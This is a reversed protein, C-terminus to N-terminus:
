EEHIGVSGFRKISLKSATYSILISSLMVTFFILAFDMYRVDVPYADFLTQGGTRVFGYKAQLLCFAIGLGIGIVSGLLAILIGEFFFIRQILSADAGFSKLVQIDKKKDIVLMTLSGIINFIAIVGIITVIFFVIWKESSVTKYLTPNQQQRDKVMFDDGLEKQISRQVKNVASPDKLFLEIASVRTPESLLDKAFSLSTIVLDDFGPQFKMVGTPTIRRVNIEDMPNLNSSQPNINKKPIYLSIANDFEKYSIQLNTQVQAGIIAFNTSDEQVKFDGFLLMDETAQTHLSEQEVGKIRGVFQQNGYQVLVRDELIESYSKFSTNARLNQFIPDNADFVKGTTPEIRLDPSFVSYQSLIFQEMGNYFSLVIVLAASSVLVGVVSISSIINIANVSKKSFLYRKAFFLPLKM